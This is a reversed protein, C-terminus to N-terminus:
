SRTEENPNAATSASEAPPSSAASSASGERARTKARDPPVGPPAVAIGRRTAILEAVISVAIEEPTSAGIEVGLPTRLRAIAAEDFGRARLRQVFKRHKPISGVMGLFSPPRGLLSEVVRQDLPHDHTVVVVYDRPGRPHERLYEEPGRCQVRVGPFRAPDAWEPREDIVTVVFGCGRALLAVSRGIHGAGVVLLSPAASVVELHLTMEGGCCMGLEQTLHREIIRSTDGSALLDGAAALAELEIAGGGITGHTSGDDALLMHSGSKRPTFGRTGLVTLLVCRRGEGRWRVLTEWVDADAPDVQFFAPPEGVPPQAPRENEDPRRDSM